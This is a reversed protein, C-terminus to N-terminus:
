ASIVLSDIYSGNVIGPQRVHPLSPMALRRPQVSARCTSEGARELWQVLDHGIRRRTEHYDAAISAGCSGSPASGSM